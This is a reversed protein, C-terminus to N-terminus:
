VERSYLTILIIFVYAQILAVARELILLPIQSLIVRVSVSFRLIKISGGLLALLLHGAIMNARLRIALTLPRITSRLLEIVVMFPILAGPTGLPM